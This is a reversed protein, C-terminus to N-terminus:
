RYGTFGIARIHKRCKRVLAAKSAISLELPLVKEAAQSPSLPPVDSSLHWTGTGQLLKEIISVSM